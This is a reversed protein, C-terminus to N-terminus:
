DEDSEEDDSGGVRNKCCFFRRFYIVICVLVFIACGIIYYYMDNFASEVDEKISGGFESFNSPYNSPSITPYTTPYTTPYNSPYNTPPITPYNTPPITPLACNPIQYINLNNQTQNCACTYLQLSNSLLRTICKSIQKCANTLTCNINSCSLVNPPNCVVNKCM